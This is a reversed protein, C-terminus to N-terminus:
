KQIGSWLHALFTNSYIDGPILGPAAGALKLAYPLSLQDQSSWRLCEDWWLDDMRMVEPTHARAIVGGCLLRGGELGQRRYYAVQDVLPEGAYKPMLSSIQAERELSRHSAPHPYMAIGDKLQSLCHEPLGEGHHIWFASDIWISHEYAHAFLEGAHMKFWKAQMRPSLTKHRAIGEVKWTKRRLPNKDDTFCVLDCGLDWAEPPEDHDGFSATYIVVRKKM